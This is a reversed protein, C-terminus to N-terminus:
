PHDDALKSVPVSSTALVSEFYEIVQFPLDVSILDPSYIGSVEGGNLWIGLYHNEGESNWKLEYLFKEQNVFEDNLDAIRNARLGKLKSLFQLVVSAPCDSENKCSKEGDKWSVSKGGGSISVSQMKQLNSRFFYKDRFENLSKKVLLLLHKGGLYIHQDSDKTVYVGYGVPSEDGVQFVLNQSKGQDDTQSVVVTFGSPDLGYDSKQLDESDFKKIYSYKQLNVLFATVVKFDALTEVPGTIMWQDQVRQFSIRPGQKNNEVSFHTVRAFDVQFLKKETLTQSKKKERFTEETIAIATLVALSCILFLLTKKQKM